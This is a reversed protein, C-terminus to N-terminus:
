LVGFHIVMAVSNRMVRNYSCTQMIERERM